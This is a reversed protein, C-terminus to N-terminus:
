MNWICDSPFLSPSGSELANYLSKVSFKRSKTETWFVMDEVDGCVKKGHLRGLFIKTEEMEWDNFSRSFCPDWEGRGGKALPDWFDVVWVEKDIALDFLTPFSVSLLLIGM